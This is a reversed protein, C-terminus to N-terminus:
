SSTGRLSEVYAPLARDLWRGDHAIYGVHGGVPEVHLHVVPPVSAFSEVPVFPDDAATLIVTPRGIRGLRPGASCTAYYDDADRYGAARATYREDVDRLTHWPRIGHGKARPDRWCGLVFRADYVRNFGRSIAASCAALDIPPNVAIAADPGGGRALLLLLANGSLSFGIAVHRARPHRRRGWAIAEALEPASGSNYPGRALGRGAGCGRHNLAVVSHPRLARAARRVYDADSDGGLGHFLYVVTDTTGPEHFLVLRDGDALAIEAREGRIRPADCPLLHGWITQAHGGRAWAPPRCPPLTPFRM